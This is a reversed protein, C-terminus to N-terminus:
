RGGCRPWRRAPIKGNIAVARHNVLIRIANFGQEEIFDLLGDMSRERLGGFTRSPGETGWWNIGKITFPKGNAMLRGNTGTQFGPAAIAPIPPPSAVTAETAAAHDCDPTRTAGCTSCAPDNCTKCCTWKPCWGQCSGALAPPPANAGQYQIAARAAAAAALVVAVSARRAAHPM